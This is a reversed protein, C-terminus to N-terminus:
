PAFPISTSNENMAIWFHFKSFPHIPSTVSFRKSHDMGGVRVHSAVLLLHVLGHIMFTRRSFFPIICYKHRHWPYRRQIGHCRGRIDVM